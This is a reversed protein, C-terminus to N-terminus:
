IDSLQSHGSDSAHYIITIKIISFVHHQECNLFFLLLSEPLKVLQEDYNVAFFYSNKKYKLMRIPKVLLKTQLRKM